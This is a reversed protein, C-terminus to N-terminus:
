YSFLIHGANYAIESELRFVKSAMSVNELKSAKSMHFPIHCATRIHYAMPTIIRSFSIALTMLSKQNWVASRRRRQCMQWRQYRQCTFQFTGHLAFTIHWPLTIRSFSIAMTVLLKQNWDGALRHTQKHRQKHTRNNTQNNHLGERTIPSHQWFMLRRYHSSLLTCFM